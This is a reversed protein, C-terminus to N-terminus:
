STVASSRAHVVFGPDAVLVASFDFIEAQLNAPVPFFFAGLGDAAVAVRALRPPASRKRFAGGQLPGAKRM